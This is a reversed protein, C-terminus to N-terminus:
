QVDQVIHQGKIRQIKNVKTSKSFFINQKAKEKSKKNRKNKIELAPISGLAEHINPLTVVM